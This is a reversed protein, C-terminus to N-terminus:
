FRRAAEQPQQHTRNACGEALNSLAFSTTRVENSVIAGAPLVVQEGGAISSISIELSLAGVGTTKRATSVFLLGHRFACKLRIITLAGLGVSKAGAHLTLVSSRYQSAAASTATMFQRDTVFSSDAM